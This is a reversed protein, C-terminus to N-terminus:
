AMGYGPFMGPPYQGAGGQAQALFISPDVGGGGGGGMLAMMMAQSTQAQSSQMMPALTAMTEKQGEAASKQMAQQQKNSQHMSVLSMIGSVVTPIVMMAIMAPVAM